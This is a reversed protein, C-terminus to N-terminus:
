RRESGERLGAFLRARGARRVAAASRPRRLPQGGHRRCRHRHRGEDAPHRTDHQQLGDPQAASLPNDSGIFQVGYTYGAFNSPLVLANSGSNAVTSEPSEHVLYARVGAGSGTGVYRVTVNPQVIRSACNFSNLATATAGTPPPFNFDFIPAAAAAPGPAAASFALDQKIGYCDYSQRQVQATLTGGAGDLEAAPFAFQAQAATGCTAAACAALLLYKKMM